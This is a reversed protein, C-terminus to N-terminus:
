FFQVAIFFNCISIGESVFHFFRDNDLRLKIIAGLSGPIGATRAPRRSETAAIIRTILLFYQMFEIERLPAPRCAFRPKKTAYQKSRRIQLLTVCYRRSAIVAHRL